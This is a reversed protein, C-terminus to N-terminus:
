VDRNEIRQLIADNEFQLWCNSIDPSNKKTTINKGCLPFFMVVFLEERNIRM